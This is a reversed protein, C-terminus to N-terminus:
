SAVAKDVKFNLVIAETASSGSVNRVHVRCSGAAVNDVGVQYTNITAGSGVCIGIVDTAAIRSNTFTFSVSTGANLTASNMTIQGCVNNLTCGTSKNTAQTVAGGAGAAYGIGASPSLSTIGGAASIIATAAALTGGQFYDGTGSWGAVDRLGVGLASGAPTTQIRLGAMSTSPTFAEEARARVAAGFAMQRFADVAGQFGFFGLQGNIATAAGTDRQLNIGAGTSGWLRAIGSTGTMAQSDSSSLDLPVVLPNLGRSSVSFLLEGIARHGRDSFHLGDDSVDLVDSASTYAGVTDSADVFLIGDTVCQTRMAARYTTLWTAPLWDATYPQFVYRITPLFTTYQARAQTAFSSLSAALTAASDASAIYDNIGLAITIIHPKRNALTQLIPGNTASDAIYNLRLGTRGARLMRYTTTLNNSCFYAKELEFATGTGSHTVTVTIPGAQGASYNASRGSDFLGAGLAGDRNDLTTSSVGNITVLATAGGTQYATYFLVVNTGERTVTARQCVSGGTSMVGGGSTTTCGTLTTGTTGTYTIVAPTTGTAVVVTGNGWGSIAAVNLTGSGAFTSTNVGNSGAAVTTALLTKNAYNMGREVNQGTPMVDWKIGPSDVGTGTKWLEIPIDGSTRPSENFVMAMLQEYVAPWSTSEPASATTHLQSDGLIMEVTAGSTRALMMTAAQQAASQRRAPPQRAATEAGGTDLGSYGSAIGKNGTYEASLTTRQAAADADDILAKGATTLDFTAATGAGTFQIGKDAASTLGAIAALDADFAQVNTGIVSGSLTRLASADAAALVSRGYSTTTLAAIATLDSDVPQFDTSASLAATGLGLATRGAAADALALFARGYSTTSLAAIATLDSDVPQSAAIAAAQAANAKTTADTAASAIAAAQAANAKTTADSAATSVSTADGTVRLAAEAAVKATADSAATSVSAADGTVRLAAEAAVKNTADTAAVAATAAATAADAAAQAVSVPMDGLAVKYDADGAASQALVVVTSAPTTNAPLNATKSDGSM